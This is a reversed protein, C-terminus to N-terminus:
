RTCPPVSEGEGVTADKLLSMSPLNNAAEFDFYSGVAAQLNRFFPDVCILICLNRLKIGLHTDGSKSQGFLLLKM